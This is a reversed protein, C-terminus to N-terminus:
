AGISLKVGPEVLRGSAADFLLALTVDLM